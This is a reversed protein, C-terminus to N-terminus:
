EGRRFADNENFNADGRCANFMDIEDIMDSELAAYVANKLRVLTYDPTHLERLEDFLCELLAEQREEPDGETLVAHVLADKQKDTLAMPQPVAGYMLSLSQLHHDPTLSM